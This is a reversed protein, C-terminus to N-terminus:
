LPEVEKIMPELIFISTSWNIASGESFGAMNRVSSFGDSSSKAIEFYGNQMFQSDHEAYIFNRVEKFDNVLESNQCSEENTKILQDDMKKCVLGYGFGQKSCKQEPESFSPLDRSSSPSTIVLLTRKTILIALQQWINDVREILDFYSIPFIIVDYDFTEKTQSRLFKVAEGDEGLIWKCKSSDTILPISDGLNKRIGIDYPVRWDIRDIGTYEVRKGKWKGFWSVRMTGLYDIGSGCGISLIKITDNKPDTLESISLYTKCYNFGYCAAYVYLYGLRNM